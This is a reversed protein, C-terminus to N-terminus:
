LARRLYSVIFDFYEPDDNAFAVPDQYLYQVGMSIVESSEFDGYLYIKGIYPSKFRDRYAIEDEGYARHIERLSIPKEDGIRDHLFRKVYKRYQPHDWEVIHGLEHVAVSTDDVSELNIIHMRMDANARGLIYRVSVSVDDTQNQLRNIFDYADQHRLLVADPDSDGYKGKHIWSSDLEAQYGYPKGTYHNFNDFVRDKDDDLVLVAKPRDRAENVERDRKEDIADLKKRARKVVPHDEDRDYLDLADMYDSYARYRSDGYKDWIKSVRADSREVAKLLKQRVKRGESLDYTVDKVEEALQARKKITASLYSFPREGWGRVFRLYGTAKDKGLMKELSAVQLTDGWEASHRHAAFDQLTVAGDQWAVFAAKGLVREQEAPTLKAFEDEGSVVVPRRDPIDLGLERWPKLVPLATCRGNPHEDMREDLKHVTGHMAWCNHTIIGNAAFWGSETQLNYVHGSFGRVDIKLIRDLRVQGTLTRLLDRGSEADAAFPQGVNKALPIQQASFLLAVRNGSLLVAIQAVAKHLQGIRFNGSSIQSAVGFHFEGLSKADCTGCNGGAQTNSADLPASRDFVSGQAAGFDWQFLSLWNKSSFGLRMSDRPFAPQVSGLSPFFFSAASQGISGRLSFNSQKFHKSSFPNGDNGLLCRTRVIYVDSGVGDGHFDPTTCKMETSVMSFTEAIEKIVTPMQYNDIGIGLAAGNSDPSSVVYDGEQLLEAAVWGSETLIPHNPTVTLHKGGATEIIIVNGTYHRSFVKQIAPGSVITDGVVCAACTRPTLTAHWVWGEVVDDNAEYNRHMAERYARLTETRSITLARALGVGFQRRLLRATERPGLGAALSAGLTDTVREAVGAIEGFVDRLPSGDAAFGVLDHLAATPLVDFPVELGAPRVGAALDVLGAAHGGAATVAQRQLATTSEEAYAAFRRLEAEIQAQLTEARDQQYFWAPSIPQGTLRAARIQAQVDAARQSTRRWAEGYMRVMDSAAARENALLERRFRAAARELVSPM